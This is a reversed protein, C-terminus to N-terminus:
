TVALKPERAVGRERALDRYLKALYAARDDLWYYERVRRRGAAAMRARREPHRTLRLMADALDRVTQEPTHPDVSIGTEETVQVAPGGCRLCIVPRGAAMAELCVWGGSDHLSPHVLVDCDALRALADDRPLAGLFRVKDSLGLRTALRELRGRDRGKGIIWYESSPLDAQVRAFARIGLHFGKLDFLTGVSVFRVPATQRVPFASLRAFETPTIGSEVLLDVRRLGSRRLFAATENAKALGIAARHMTARLLPDRRALRQALERGYEYIRGRLGFTPYFARPAREAGGVPGWVFPIALRVLLSPMWHIGFTVHHAVDFHVRAHLRKAEFYVGIQWLYYYLHIGRLGKKWFTMWRPLDFYVWHTNPLPQQALRAEIAERNKARTLVWVEHGRSAQEVFRWGVGPESGRGPECAYASLLIRLRDM